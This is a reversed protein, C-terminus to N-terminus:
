DQDENTDDEEEEEELDEEDMADDDGGEAGAGASLKQIRKLLDDKAMGKGKKAAANAKSTAKRKQGVATNPKANAKAAPKGSGVGQGGAADGSELDQMIVALDAQFIKCGETLFAQWVQSILWDKVGATHAETLTIGFYPKKRVVQTLALNGQGVALEVVSVIDFSYVLEEDIECPLSHYFVPEVDSAERAQLGILPAAQGGCALKLHLRRGAWLVPRRWSPRGPWSM